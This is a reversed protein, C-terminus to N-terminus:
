TQGQMRVTIRVLRERSGNGPRVATIQRSVTWRTVARVDAQEGIEILNRHVFLYSGLCGIHPRWSCARARDM